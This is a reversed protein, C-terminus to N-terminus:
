PMARSLMALSTMPLSPTRNAGYRAVNNTKMKIFLRHPMMGSAWIEGFECM